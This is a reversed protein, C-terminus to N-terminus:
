FIFAFRLILVLIIIAFVAGALICLFTNRRKARKEGRICQKHLSLLQYPSIHMNENFIYGRANTKEELEAKVELAEVFTFSGVVKIPKNEEVGYVKFKM